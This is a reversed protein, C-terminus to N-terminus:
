LLVRCSRWCPRWACGMASQPIFVASQMSSQHNDISHIDISSHPNFLTSQRIASQHRAAARQRSLLQESRCDIAMPLRFEGIRSAISLRCDGIALRWDGILLRFEGIRLAISL